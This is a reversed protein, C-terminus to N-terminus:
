QIILGSGGVQGAAPVCSLVLPSVRVPPALSTTIAFRWGCRIWEVSLKLRLKFAPCPSSTSTATCAGPGPAYDLVEAVQGGGAPGSESDEAPSPRLGSNLHIVALAGLANRVVGAVSGDKRTSAKAPWARRWEGAEWLRPRSWRRRNRCRDRQHASSTRPLRVMEDASIQLMAPRANLRVLSPRACCCPM